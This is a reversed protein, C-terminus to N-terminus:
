DDMWSVVEVWGGKLIMENQMWENGWSDRERDMWDDM